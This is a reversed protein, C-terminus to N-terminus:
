REEGVSAAPPPAVPLARPDQVCIVRRHGLPDVQLMYYEQGTGQLDIIWGGWPMQIKVPLANKAAAQQDAPPVIQGIPGTLLGTEPDLFALLGSTLAPPTGPRTATAPAITAGPGARRAHTRHTSTRPAAALAVGVALALLAAGTLAVFAHRPAPRMMM